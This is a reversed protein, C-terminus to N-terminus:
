CSCSCRCSCCITAENSTIVTSAITQGLVNSITVTKGEAGKIIVAGNGAIVSVESTASKKMKRNGYRRRHKRHQLYLVDGGTKANNFESKEDTLVICNNQM